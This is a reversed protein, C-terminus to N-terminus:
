NLGIQTEQEVAQLRIITNFFLNEAQERGQESLVFLDRMGFSVCYAYEAWAHVDWHPHRPYALIAQRRVFSQWPSV